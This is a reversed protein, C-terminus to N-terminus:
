AAEGPEPRVELALIGTVDLAGRAAMDSLLAGADVGREPTWAVSPSRPSVEPLVVGPPLPEGDKIAKEAAAIVSARAQATIRVESVAGGFVAAAFAIAQEEDEIFPKATAKVAKKVTVAGITVPRGDEGIVDSVVPLRTGVANEALFKAKEASEVDAGFKRYEAAVAIRLERTVAIKETM